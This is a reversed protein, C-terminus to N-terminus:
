ESLRLGAEMLKERVFAQVREAVAIARQTEEEDPAYPEEGYRLATAYRTLERVGWEKLEYFSPALQACLEVLAPISHTRPHERGHFILFAKLYKEVCQQMHFCIVWSIPRESRMLIKGTELEDEARRIWAQVAEENM